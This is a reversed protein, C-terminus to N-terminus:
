RFRGRNRGDTRQQRREMIEKQVIGNFEREARFFENVKDSSLAKNFEGNFKKRIGLMKEEREIEGGKNERMDQHARRMENAYSNYVPWFKQAEDTSLNLKRTLYAIKLAEIRGAEPRKEEQAQLTLSFLLYFSFLLIINKM